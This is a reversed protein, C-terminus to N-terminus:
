CLRGLAEELLARMFESRKQQAAGAMEELKEALSTPLRFGVHVLGEEPYLPKRGANSQKVEQKKQSKKAM